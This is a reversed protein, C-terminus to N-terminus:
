NHSHYVHTVLYHYELERQSEPIPALMQHQKLRVGQCLRLQHKYVDDLTLTLTYQYGDLPIPGNLEIHKVYKWNYISHFLGGFKIPTGNTYFYHEQGATQYCKEPTGSTVTSIRDDTSIKYSDVGSATAISLYDDNGHLYLVNNSLLDPYQKYVAPSGGSVTARYLGVDATGYYVYNTDAWVSNVGAAHSIQNILVESDYDYIELGSSTAKYIYPDVTWINYNITSL